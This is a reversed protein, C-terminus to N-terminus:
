SQVPETILDYWELKTNQAGRGLGSDYDRGDPGTFRGSEPDYAAAYVAPEAPRAAWAEATAPVVQGAPQVPLNTGPLGNPFPVNDRESPVFGTECEEPTPARRGPYEVCPFNRAGRVSVQANQPMRCVTGEPVQRPTQENPSRWDEPPIFGVTCTGPDQFGLTFNVNPGYNNSGTNIATILTAMVRPYLVIVQQLNPLYVAQTHTVTGLNSILLPLSLNMDEFLQQAQAAMGPGTALIDSIDPKAARLQDTVETVDATWSRIDDATRTQTALLPGAQDILDLTVDLNENAAGVFLIMSDILRQLATANGNFALFAEDIVTRLRTDTVEVLLADVQDLMTAIEVPVDDTQLVAGGSLNHPSPDDPPTLEVFQEGIASVSRVSVQANEPIHTGSSVWLHATVGEPTLNVSTVKGVNVGRYSVNANPYLGGTSPLQVEVRYVGFGLMQPIRIYYVAMATIAIVTVISFILLQMRVFPTIKM